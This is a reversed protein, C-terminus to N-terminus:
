KKEEDYIPTIYTIKDIAKEMPFIGKMYREQNELIKASVLFM